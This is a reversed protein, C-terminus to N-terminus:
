QGSQQQNAESWAIVAEMASRPDAYVRGTRYREGDGVILIGVWERPGRRILTITENM